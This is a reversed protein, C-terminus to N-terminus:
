SSFDSLIKEIALGVGTLSEGAIMGSALVILFRSSWGPFWRQLVSGCVAGLFLSIANYAPLVFALGVSAPSPVWRRIRSPLTKELVALAIGAVGGIIMAQVASPLLASLGQMFLEAVAKWSAVAPAPWEDTLLQNAPDPVLLLYGASGALAGSIAGCLQAVFQFGPKAGIMKGTRLDHMLDACQSAAGGTVNASMLNAAPQGPSLIAFMLQTVKGMAGVPTVNTEGAVRGAVIALLFTTVVGLAAIWPKIQFLATQLSVSLALVVILAVLFYRTVFDSVGDTSVPAEAAARGKPRRFTNVISRWSFAFSTLASTVMMAVGPWLMWKLGANFWSRTPDAPGLDTWGRDFAIPACVGWALVTGLLLSWGVRPGVIAGVAYMMATPEISFGLNAATLKGIGAQAVAGDARPTLGFPLGIVRLSAFHETLKLMAAGVAGSILMWVRSMVAGGVAHIEKLTEGTAIGGPFPLNDVEIMQRRIGYAVVIGVLCVSFTWAVLASWGLTQGTIMTLAPIPAVLGASSIAAGSSAATQNLNNEYINFPRAGLGQGLKWFGFGLIVATVSMGMGWGVKLGTYINCLSLSGGLVMGTLVARVTLQRDSSAPPPTSSAAPEAM